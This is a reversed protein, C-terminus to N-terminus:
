AASLYGAVDGIVHVTGFGNVLNVSGNADLRSMVLNAVARGPDVNLNSAWPVASDGAHVTLYTGSSADTAATNMIVGAPRLGDPASTPVGTVRQPSRVGAVVPQGSTRTDFARTPSLAPLLRGAESTAGGATYGLVDIILDTPGHSYFDAAGDQGLRVLALNPVVSNPPANLNSVFPRGDGAAYGTVYTHAISTVATLNVIVANANTPVGNRGAFVVRRTAGGALATGHERTDLM